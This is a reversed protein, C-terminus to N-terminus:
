GNGYNVELMQRCRDCTLDELPASTALPTAVVNRIGCLTSWKHDGSDGQPHDPSAHLFTIHTIRSRKNAYALYAPNDLRLALDVRQPQDNESRAPALHRTSLDAIRSLADRFLTRQRENIREHLTSHDAREQTSTGIAEHSIHQMM